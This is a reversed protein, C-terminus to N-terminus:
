ELMEEVAVSEQVAVQRRAEVMIAAVDEFDTPEQHCIKV